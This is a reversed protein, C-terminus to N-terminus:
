TAVARDLADRAEEGLRLLEPVPNGFDAPNRPNVASLRGSVLRGALTRVTAEAGMPADSQLFGRIRAVFDVHATEDPINPARSGAELIVQQVEVWAGAPVLDRPVAPAGSDKV